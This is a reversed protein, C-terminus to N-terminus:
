PSISYEANNIGQPSCAPQWVDSGTPWQTHTITTGKAIGSGDQMYINVNFACLIALIALWQGAKACWKGVWFEVTLMQRGKNFM